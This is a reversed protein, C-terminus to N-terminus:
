ATIAPPIRSALLSYGGFLRKLVRLRCMPISESHSPVTLRELPFIQEYDNREPGPMIPALDLGHLVTWGREALWVLTTEELINEAILTM